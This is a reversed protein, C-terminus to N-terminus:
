RHCAPQPTPTDVGKPVSKLPHCLSIKVYEMLGFHVGNVLQKYKKLLVLYTLCNTQKLAVCSIQEIFKTYSTVGYM